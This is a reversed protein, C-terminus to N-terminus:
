WFKRIKANKSCNKWFYPHKTSIEGFIEEASFTASGPLVSIKKYFIWRHVLELDKLDSFQTQMLVCLSPSLFWEMSGERIDVIITTPIPIPIVWTYQEEQRNLTSISLHQDFVDTAHWEYFPYFWNDDIKDGTM